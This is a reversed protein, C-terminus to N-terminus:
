RALCHPLLGQYDASVFALGPVNYTSIALEIIADDVIEIFVESATEIVTPDNCELRSSWSFDEFM